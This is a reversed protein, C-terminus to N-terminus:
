ILGSAIFAAKVSKLEKYFLMWHSTCTGEYRLYPELFSYLCVFFFFNNKVNTKSKM